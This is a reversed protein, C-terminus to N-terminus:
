SMETPISPSNPVVEITTFGQDFKAYISRVKSRFLFNKKGEDTIEGTIKVLNCDDLQQLRRYVTSIPIHTEEAIKVASKESKQTVELINRSYADSMIALIANTKEPQVPRTKFVTEM